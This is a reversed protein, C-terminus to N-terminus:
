LSRQASLPYIFVWAKKMRVVFVRILSPPHSLQDSDEGPACAMEDTKDRPPENRLKANRVFDLKQESLLQHKTKRLVTQFSLVIKM